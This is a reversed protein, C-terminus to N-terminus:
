PLRPPDSQNTPPPLEPLPQWHTVNKFPMGSSAVINWTGPPEDFFDVRYAMCIEKGNTALVEQEIDPLIKDVSIWDSM